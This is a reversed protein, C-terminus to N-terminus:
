MVPGHNAPGQNFMQQISPEQTKEFAPASMNLTAQQWAASSQAISTHAAENTMVYAYTAPADRQVAFARLGDESLAVQDIRTLGNSVAAPVLSGAVQVTQQDSIRCMGSDIETMGSLAQQYMAHGPHHQDTLLMSTSHEVEAKAVDLTNITQSGVRGDVTLHHDRQFAMVAHRTNTGFDGDLKLPHGQTETYGLQALSTQLAKVDPGRAGQIMLGKGSQQMMLTSPASPETGTQQQAQHIARQMTPGNYVAELQRAYNPDTAYGAKQLATAEKVFNGKTGEDFLGANSYRSNEKLFDVRDKLAEEVSGYVRFDQDKWVKKGNEIEWVNFTKTPGSWSASAKINFINNTGALVHEGWGTELAAQALILEKSMGTQQSVLVAAPYLKVIFDEKNSM